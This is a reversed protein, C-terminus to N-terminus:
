GIDKEQQRKRLSLFAAKLSKFGTESAILDKELAAQEVKLAWDSIPELALTRASGKIRHALQYVSGADSVALADELQRMDVGRQTIFEALIEQYDALSLNTKLAREEDTGWSEMEFVNGTEALAKDEEEIAPGKERGCYGAIIGELISMRIPKSLYGDMGAELFRERDGKMASATLALIPTKCGNERIKRTAEMGDMLPMNVDMLIIDYQTTRSMEVAEAGNQAIDVKHGMRKGLLLSTMRQSAVDDEALLVHLGLLSDSGEHPLRGTLAEEKNRSVQFRETPSVAEKLRIKFFFTTGEGLKSKVDIKGGMLHILRRCIALGLGTGGFRKRIAPDAQNFVEFIATQKDEPIGIGTDSVSFGLHLFGDNSEGLFRVHVTIRGSDTFKLANGLLNLLVQRLRLPDGMVPPIGPPVRCSLDIDKRDAQPRVLEAAELVLSRLDIITEDLQITDSEIKSLDLIEDILTMLTEASLKLIEASERQSESLPEQLLIEAFGLISNMPTRIEHSMNALFLSKAKNASEAAEKARLLEAESRRSDVVRGLRESIADILSIEEGLFPCEEKQPTEKLCFVELFGVVEDHIFILSKQKRESEKFGASTYTQDDIVIRACSYEPHEMSAPIINVSGQLIEELSIDKKEILHSIAYLCFLHKERRDFEQTRENLLAKMRRNEEAVAKRKKIEAFSYISLAFVGAMFLGLLWLIDHDM